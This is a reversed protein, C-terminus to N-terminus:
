LNFHQMGGYQGMLKDLEGFSEFLPVLPKSQPIKRKSSMKNFLSDLKKKLPDVEEQLKEKDVQPVEIVAERRDNIKMKNPLPEELGEECM